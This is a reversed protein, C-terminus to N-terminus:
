RRHTPKLLNIKQKLKKYGTWPDKEQKALRELVTQIDYKILTQASELENWFLPTAVLPEERARLSFPAISTAGFGNRLYDLFIKGGRKAKTSKTIYQKPFQSELQQCLTKAFSKCQDWTYKPAIPVHVHLGKGGTTKVFSKLDLAELLEKLRFATEKIAPWKVSVDPDLDLVIQDPNELNQDHCQWTHIEIVGLQVLDLLGQERKLLIIKQDRVQDETLAPLSSVDIHKQFFCGDGAENHCRVVSLPRKLSHEIFWPTISKYYQAVDMKTIKKKPYLIRTPHSIHFAKETNPEVKEKKLKSPVTAIPTEMIVEKAPKDERLGKFSAQRLIRDQTWTKFEIEAVLKPKVWHVNALGDPKGIDLPNKDVAIQKMKLIVDILVQDTFGTGVRGVYRLKGKEYAAMLLAGFHERAGEPDSYGIIIFEQRLSCKIKLWDENRGSHYPLNRNKSVIGEVGDRCAKKLLEDGPTRIHESFKIQESPKNKLIQKLHDKREELPLSRLDQGDYYLLDFIYYILETGKSDKLTRQLEAFSTQGKEDIAVIEGDFLADKLGLKKIEKDLPTYKETWDLGSRTIFKVKKNKVSTFTRYGDLKLEHIWQPGVPVESSLTALQPKLDDPFEDRNKKKSPLEKPRTIKKQRIM